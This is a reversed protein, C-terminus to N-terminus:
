EEFSYINDSKFDQMYIVETIGDNNIEGVKHNELEGPMPYYNKSDFIGTEIGINVEIKEGQYYPNPIDGCIEEGCLYLPYLYDGTRTELALDCMFSIKILQTLNAPTIQRVVSNLEILDLDKNSVYVDLEIGYENYFLELKYQNAGLYSDLIQRLSRDTYVNLINWFFYVMKRAEELDSKAIKENILKIYADLGKISASQIYLDKMMQNLKAWLNNLEIDETLAISQFEAGKGIVDYPIHKNVKVERTISILEEDEHLKILEDVKLTIEKQEM